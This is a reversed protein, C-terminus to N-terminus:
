GRSGIMRRIEDPDMPTPTSLHTNSWIKKSLERYADAQLNLPAGEIVTTGLNECDRVVRSRPILGIMESGMSRSFRSVIAEEHCVDRSNCIIGGLNVNLNALGKAINNAAYLALYEGSTVIYVENAFRERLPAAFGGCVIDGPM